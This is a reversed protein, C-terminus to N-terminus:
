ESTAIVIQEPRDIVPLLNAVGEAILEWPREQPVYTRGWRGMAGGGEITPALHTYGLADAVPPTSGAGVLYPSNGGGNGIGVMKNKPMFPVKAVTGDTAVIEGEAGYLQIMVTDRNDSSLVGNANVYRRITLVGNDGNAVMLNNVSQAMAKQFLEPHILITKVDYGLAAQIAWVDEWFKSATGGYASTGTRATLKNTAPINYDVRVKSGNYQWDIMGNAIARGRLWEAADLHGQVILKNYFNTVEQIMQQSTNGSTSQINMLLYLLERQTEETLKASATLKITQGKGTTLRTNGVKAYESDMGSMGAMTSHVTFQGNAIEFTPRNVEPLIQAFAYKDPTRAENIIRFIANQKNLTAIANTFDILM